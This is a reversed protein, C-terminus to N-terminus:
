MSVSYSDLYITFLRNARPCAVTMTGACQVGKVKIDQVEQALGVIGMYVYQYLKYVGRRVSPIERDLSASDEHQIFSADAYM